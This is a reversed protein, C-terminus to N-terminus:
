PFWSALAWLVSGFSSARKILCFCNGGTRVSWGAKKMKVYEILARTFGMRDYNEVPVDGLYVSYGDKRSSDQFLTWPTRSGTLWFLACCSFAFLLLIAVEKLKRM